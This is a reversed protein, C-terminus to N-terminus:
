SLKTLNFHYYTSGNYTFDVDVVHTQGNGSLKGRIVQGGQGDRYVNGASTDFTYGESRYQAILDKSIKDCDYSPENKRFQANTEEVGYPYSYEGYSTLKALNSGTAPAQNNTPTTPNNNEPTQTTAQQAQQTQTQTQAPQQAPTQAQTKAPQTQQTQAPTSSPASSSPAASSPTLAAAPASSIAASSEAASSEIPLVYYSTTDSTSIASAITAKVPTNASVSLAIIVVASGIICVAMAATIIKGGSTSLFGKLKMVINKM